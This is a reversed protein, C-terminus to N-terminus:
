RKDLMEAAKGAVFGGLSYLAITFLRTRVTRDSYANTLRLYKPLYVGGIGAAVGLLVGRTKATRAKGTAALAYYFSNSVIDGALTIGYLQKEPINVDTKEAVKTLAEEGMLDMRPADEVLKHLLQHALTLTIAGALGATFAHLLKM